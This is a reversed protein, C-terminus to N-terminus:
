NKRTTRKSQKKSKKSQKLHNRSGGDYGSGGAGRPGSRYGSASSSSSSSASAAAALSPLKLVNGAPRRLTEPSLSSIAAKPDKVIQIRIKRIDFGAAKLRNEIPTKPRNNSSSTAKSAAAAAAAASSAAAGKSSRARGSGPESSDEENVFAVVGSIKGDRAYELGGLWTAINALRTLKVGWDGGAVREILSLEKELRPAMFYYYKLFGILERVQYMFHSNPSRDETAPAAPAAAAAVAAPAAATSISAPVPQGLTTLATGMIQCARQIAEKNSRATQASDLRRRLRIAAQVEPTNAASAASPGTRAGGGQPLGAAYPSVYPNKLIELLVPPRISMDEGYWVTPNKPFPFGSTQLGSRRLNTYFQLVLAKEAEQLRADVSVEIQKKAKLLATIPAGRPGSAASLAAIKPGFERMVLENRQEIMQQTPPAQTEFYTFWQIDGPPSAGGPSPAAAAPAAVASRNGGFSRASASSPLAAAAAAAAAAAVPPVGRQAWDAATTEIGNKSANYIVGNHPTPAPLTRALDLLKTNLDTIVGGHVLRLLAQPVESFGIKIKAPAAAAAAAKGPRARAGGRQNGADAEENVYRDSYYILWLMTFIARRNVIYHVRGEEDIAISMLNIDSKLQNCHRCANGYLISYLYMVEIRKLGLLLGFLKLYLPPLVNITMSEISLKHECEWIRGWIRCFMDSVPPGSRGEPMGPNPIKGGCMIRLNCLYCFFPINNARDFRLNLWATRYETNFADRAAALKADDSGDTKNMAEFAAAIPTVGVGMATEFADELGEENIFSAFVDRPRDPDYNSPLDRVGRPAVYSDGGMGRACQEQPSQLEFRARMLNGVENNAAAGGNQKQLPKNLLNVIHTLGATELVKAAVGDPSLQPEGRNKDYGMQLKVLFDTMNISPFTLVGTKRSVTAPLRPLYYNYFTQLAHLMYECTTVPHYNPIRSSTTKLADLAALRPDAAPAAASPLLIPQPEPAVTSLQRLLSAAGARLSEENIVIDINVPAEDPDLEYPDLNDVDEVFVTPNLGSTGWTRSGNVNENFANNNNAAAAAPGYPSAAAAAPDYPPAAAASNSAATLLRAEDLDIGLMTGQQSGRPKQPPGGRVSDGSNHRASSSGRDYGYRNVRSSNARSNRYTTPLDRGARYENRRESRTGGKM